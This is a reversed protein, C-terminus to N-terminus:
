EFANAVALNNTGTIVSDNSPTLKVASAWNSSRRIAGHFSDSRASLPRISTRPPDIPLGFPNVDTM